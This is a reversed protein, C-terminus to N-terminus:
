MYKTNHTHAIVCYSFVQITGTIHHAYLLDKLQSYKVLLQLIQSDEDMEEEQTCEQDMSARVKELKQLLFPHAMVLMSMM